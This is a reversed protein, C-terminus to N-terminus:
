PLERIQVDASFIGTKVRLDWKVIEVDMLDDSIGKCAASLFDAHHWGSVWVPLEAARGATVRTCACIAVLVAM